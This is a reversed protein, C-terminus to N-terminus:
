LRDLPVVLTKVIITCWTKIGKRESFTSTLVDRWLKVHQVPLKLLFIVAENNASSKVQKIKDIFKPITHFHRADVFCLNCWVM